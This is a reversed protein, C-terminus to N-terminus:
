HLAACGRWGRYGPLPCCPASARQWGQGREVWGAVRCVQLHFHHRRPSPLLRLCRRDTCARRPQWRLVRAAGGARRAGVRCAGAACKCVTPAGPDEPTYEDLCIPCTDDSFELLPVVRREVSIELQEALHLEALHAQEAGGSSGVSAAREPTLQREPQGQEEM